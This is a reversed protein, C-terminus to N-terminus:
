QRVARFWTGCIRDLGTGNGTKQFNGAIELMHMSWMSYMCIVWQGNVGGGVGIGLVYM